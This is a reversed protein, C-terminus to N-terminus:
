EVFEEALERLLRRLTARPATSRSDSELIRVAVRPLPPLGLRSGIDSLGQPLVVASRVTAGM